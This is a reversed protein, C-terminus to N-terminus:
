CHRRHGRAHREGESDHMDISAKRPAHEVENQGPTEPRPRRNALAAEAAPAAAMTAAGPAPAATPVGGAEEAPRGGPPSTESFKAASGDTRGDQWWQFNFSLRAQTLLIDSRKFVLRQFDLLDATDKHSFHINSNLALLCSVLPRGILRADVCPAKSSGKGDELGADRQRVAM